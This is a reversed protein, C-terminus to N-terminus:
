EAPENLEVPLNADFPGALVQEQGSPWRVEIRDASEADGLGFYLPYLSQSLYGSQGDHVKTYRRDGTVVTVVSGLGSRNSKTGVLKVKLFHIKKKESLDSVLVMPESNFENTVVDLDGDNDLDFIVSSRSGLAGWLIFRSTDGQMIGCFRHDKHASGCDLEFWPTATGGRRPEVGLIFESDLFSEGRNNLLVSNVGYRWPYNMSSTIFVDDFGDANLDGVSLGWPWYNEAGIQDSIETFVEGDRKFFGNGYISKGGSGLFSEPWRMRSKLKERGPGVNESMDSHMDTVYIDMRGDNDFDFVKIGMAGWPTKPFLERSKREFYKGKVNEYYEDHGQMNLVYLDPWGDENADVPSADGSWGTDQLKTAESVDAFRNEGLNKFLISQETREAKLHGSFADTYGDYFRFDGEQLHSTTDDNTVPRSEDSTYQGVNTLFLDLLGDRNYDFFVAASSHGRHGLGSHETIDKFRGSGDNEFLMNGDRINTVYLDPDGDNDIDAFSASVGTPNTVAVGAAQTIDEFRGDGLNRYLGNSGVQNSFYIDYLGDADVDAIALGNGHDYHVPKYTQGADDVIRHIFGIGSGNLQDVFQFDCFVPFDGAKEIQAKQRSALWPPEVINAPFPVRENIVLKLDRILDDLSQQTIGDYLGRVRGRHDVLVFKSSHTIPMQGGLADDDVPFKFGEKCLQWIEDRSGTLFRWRREDAKVRGAYEALVEATDNEPDVSISVLQTHDWLFYRDREPGRAQKYRAANDQLVKQCKALLATQQPCTATCRTFIFNAVWVKGSLERLGFPEGTQDILSFDPVELLVPLGKDMRDEVTQKGSDAQKLVFVAVSAGVLILVGAVLTMQMTKNM